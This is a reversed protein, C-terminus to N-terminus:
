AAYTLGVVGDRQFPVSQRGFFPISAFHIRIHELHFFFATICVRLGAIPFDHIHVFDAFRGNRVQFRIAIIRKPETGVICHSITAKGAWYRERRNQSQRRRRHNSRLKRRLLVCRRTQIHTPLALLLELLQDVGISHHYFRPIPTSQLRLIRLAIRDRRHLNRLQITAHFIQKRSRCIRIRDSLSHFFLIM